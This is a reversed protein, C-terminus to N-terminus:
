LKGASCASNTISLKFTEGGLEAMLSKFAKKSSLGCWQHNIAGHRTNIGICGMVQSPYNAVHMLIHTRDQVNTIEIADYGGKHFKRPRCVYVGEPICSVGRKNELWPREVTAYYLGSPTVLEGFTGDPSYAFRNMEAVKM